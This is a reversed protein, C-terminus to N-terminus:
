MPMYSSEFECVQRNHYFYRQLIRRYFSEPRSYASSTDHNQFDYQYVLNGAVDLSTTVVIDTYCRAQNARRIDAELISVNHLYGRRDQLLTYNVSTDVGKIINSAPTNDKKRWM